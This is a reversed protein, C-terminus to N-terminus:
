QLAEWILIKIPSMGGDIVAKTFSLICTLGTREKDDSTNM